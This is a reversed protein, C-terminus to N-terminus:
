RAVIIVYFNKNKAIGVFNYNPDILSAKNYKTSFLEHAFLAPYIGCLLIQRGEIWPFGCDRARTGVDEGLFGNHECYRQAAILNVQRQAAANLRHDIELPIKRRQNIISLERDFNQGFAIPAYLMLLLAIFFM